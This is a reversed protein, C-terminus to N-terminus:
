RFAGELPVFPQQPSERAAEPRPTMRGLNPATLVALLIPLAVYPNNLGSVSLSNITAIAMLVIVLTGSVRSMRMVVVPVILALLLALVGGDYYLRMAFSHLIVSYCQGDGVSSFLREYYSLQECAGASLPTIPPTGYIREAWGWHATEGQLVEFFQVRDIVQSEAARAQFVVWPLAAAALPLLGALYKLFVDSTRTSWLAYVVLVVYTLAGSRSGSLVTLVGLLVVMWFRHPANQRHVVAALATFLALEFNNELFLGPRQNPGVLAATLLSKLTALSILWWALKHLLDTRSWCHGRAMAFVVLYVLWRHAQLLDELPPQELLAGVIRTGIYAALILLMLPAIIRGRIFIWAALLLIWADLIATMPLPSFEGVYVVSVLASGLLVLYLLRQLWVPIEVEHTRAGAAPTPRLPVTPWYRPM